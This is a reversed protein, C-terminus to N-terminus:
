CRLYAGAHMLSRGYGATFCTAYAAPDAPDLLRLGDGFRAVTAPPLYLTEAAPPADLYDILSRRCVPFPPSLPLPLRSATLYYRPRRMPVGLETPCLLRERTEYGREALLRLLHRRAQSRAFGAVN